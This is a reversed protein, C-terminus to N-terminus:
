SAQHLLDEGKAVILSGPRTLLDEVREGLLQEIWDLIYTVELREAQLCLLGHESAAQPCVRVEQDQVVQLRDRTCLQRNLMGQWRLFLCPQPAQESVQNSTM